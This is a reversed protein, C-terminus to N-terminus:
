SRSAVNPTIIPKETIISRSTRRPQARGAGRMPVLNEMGGCGGIYRFETKTYFPRECRDTFCSSEASMGYRPLYGTSFPPIWRLRPDPHDNHAISVPGVITRGHPDKESTPFSCMAM